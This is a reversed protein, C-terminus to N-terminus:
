SVTSAEISVEVMSALWDASSVTEKVGEASPWVTIKNVTSSPCRVSKRKTWSATLDAGDVTTGVEVGDCAVGNDAGHEQKGAAANNGSTTTNRFRFFFTYDAFTSPSVIVSGAVSM